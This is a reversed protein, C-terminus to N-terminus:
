RGALGGTYWVAARSPMMPGPFLSGAVLGRENIDTAGAQEQGLTDLELVRGRRWVAGVAGREGDM